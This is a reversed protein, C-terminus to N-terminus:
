PAATQNIKNWNNGMWVVIDHLSPPIPEQLQLWFLVIMSWWSDAIIMMYNSRPSSLLVFYIISFFIFLSYWIHFILTTVESISLSLLSKVKKQTMSALCCQKSAITKWSNKWNRLTWNKANLIRVPFETSQLM